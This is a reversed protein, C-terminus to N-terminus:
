EPQPIEEVGVDGDESEEEGAGTGDTPNGNECTWGDPMRTKKNCKMMRWGKVNEPTMSIPLKADSFDANSVDADDFSADDFNCGVCKMDSLNGQDFAAMSLDTGSLDTGSLDAKSFDTWGGARMRKVMEAREAPTGSALKARRADDAIGQLPDLLFVVLACVAMAVVRSIDERTGFPPLFLSLGAAGLVLLILGVVNANMTFHATACAAVLMVVGAIGGIRAQAPTFPDDGEFRESTDRKVAKHRSTIDPKKPRVTEKKKPRSPRATRRKTSGNDPASPRATPTAERVRAIEEAGEKGQPHKLGVSEFDRYRDIDHLL